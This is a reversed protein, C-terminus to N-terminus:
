YPRCFVLGVCSFLAEKEEVTVTKPLASKDSIMSGSRNEFSCPKNM